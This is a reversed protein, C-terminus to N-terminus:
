SPAASISFCSILIDRYSALTHPHFYMIIFWTFFGWHRSGNEDSGGRQADECAYKTLWELRLVDIDDVAGYSLFRLSRKEKEEDDDDERSEQGKEEDEDRRRRKDGDEEGELGTRREDCIFEIVAKQKRGNKRDEFPYM